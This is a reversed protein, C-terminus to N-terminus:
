GHPHRHRSNASSSHLPFFPSPLPLADGAGVGWCQRGPFVASGLGPQTNPVALNIVAVLARTLPPKIVMRVNMAVEKRSKDETTVTFVKIIQIASSCAGQASQVERGRFWSQFLAFEWSTITWICSSLQKLFQAALLARGLPFFFFCRIAGEVWPAAPTGASTSHEAGAALSTWSICFVSWPSTPSVLDVRTGQALEGGRWGVRCLLQSNPLAAQGAQQWCGLRAGSAPQKNRALVSCAPDEERAKRSGNLEDGQAPHVQWSQRSEGRQSRGRARERAQLRDWCGLRGPWCFAPQLQWLTQLM